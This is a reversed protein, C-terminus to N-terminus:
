SLRTIKKRECSISLNWTQAYGIRYNRDVAFTKTISQSATGSFGNDLTLRRIPSTNLTGTSAFPPQSALRTAFNQYVNGHYYWGYSGRVTSRLKRNAKWAFGFRPSVNNHDGDILADPFAGSYPGAKGPTVTAVGTVGPAIDLNALRNYKETWPGFYEYRMGLNVTLNPTAKWEDQLFLSDAFLRVDARVFEM